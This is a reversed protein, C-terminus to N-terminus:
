PLEIGKQKALFTVIDAIEQDTLTGRYSPMPSHKDEITFDRLTTRDFSRLQESSDILLVSFADHNLLRGTVAVGDHTVLRVFRNPPTIEADPDVISRALEASRRLRGIETLDPGLRSGTGHISHCSACRGKGEYLMKGRAADGGVVTNRENDAAMARLYTVVAGATEESMRNAPMGTGPIGNRIIGVLEDDSNARRFRGHGLDVGTVQDGEQGHCSACISMYRARGVEPDHPDPQHHQAWGVRVTM